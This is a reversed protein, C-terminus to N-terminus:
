FDEAGAKALRRLTQALMPQRLTDGPAPIHGDPMLVVTTHFPSNKLASEYKKYVMHRFLCMVFGEEAYRIAPKLLESWSLNGSGYKKWIYEMVKVTSPITTRTHYQLDEEM